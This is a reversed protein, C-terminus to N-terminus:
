LREEILARMRVVKPALEPIRYKQWGYDELPVRERILQDVFDAGQAAEAADIIGSLAFLDAVEEAEPLPGAFQLTIPEDADGALCHGCEHLEIYEVVARPLWSAIFLRHWGNFPPTLYAPTSINLRRVKVRSFELVRQIDSYRVRGGTAYSPMMMRAYRIAELARTEPQTPRM